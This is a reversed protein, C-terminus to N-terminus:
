DPLLVSPNTKKEHGNDEVIHLIASLEAIALSVRSYRVTFEEDNEFTAKMLIESFENYADALSKQSIKTTMPKIILQFLRSQTLKNIM